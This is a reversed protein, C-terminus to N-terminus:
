IAMMPVMQLSSAFRCTSRISCCGLRHPEGVEQDTMVHAIIDGSDADLALHRKRWRRRSKASRKEELWQSAGYVQLGTSDILVHVPGDRARENAPCCVSTAMPQATMLRM